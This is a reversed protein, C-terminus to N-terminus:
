DYSRVGNGEIEHQRTFRDYAGIAHFTVARLTQTAKSRCEPCTSNKDSDSMSRIATHTHDNKCTYNYTPM